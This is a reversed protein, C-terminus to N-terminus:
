GFGHTKQSKSAIQTLGFGRQTAGSQPDQMPGQFSETISQRRVDHALGTESFHHFVEPVMARVSKMGEHHADGMLRQAEQPTRRMGAGDKALLLIFDFGEVPLM